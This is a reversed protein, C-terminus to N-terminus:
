RRLLDAVTVTQLGRDVIARAIGDMADVTHMYDDHFLVIDGGQLGTSLFKEKLQGADHIAHDRSDISWLVVRYGRALLGALSLPTLAGYPPRVFRNISVGLVQEILDNAREVDDLYRAFHVKRANLHSFGHSAVQHGRAAVDRLLAPARSVAEGTVFFTARVGMGDLCDLLRPTNECHPGDDFTLAVRAEGHRNGACVFRGPFIRGLVSKM